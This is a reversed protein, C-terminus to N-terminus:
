PDMYDASQDRDKLMRASADDIVAVNGTSANFWEGAKQEITEVQRDNPREIGILEAARNGPRGKEDLIGNRVELREFVDLVDPDARLQAVLERANPVNSDNRRYIQADSAGMFSSLAKFAMAELSAYGSTVSVVLSVSLAVAAVTLAVRVRHAGFNSIALRRIVM